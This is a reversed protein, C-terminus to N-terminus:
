ADSTVLRPMLALVTLPLPQAQEIAVRGESDIGGPMEVEVDGSFPPPPQDMAMTSRRLPVAEGAAGPMGLRFGASRLLRVGLRHIRKTRGQATGDAAGAEIRLTEIRATFGLGAHAVAAARQLTLAGDGGVAVDPHAAGDALVAVQAGALHGLGGLNATPAGAYSLGSDVSFHAALEGEWPDDLFEVFRRTQGGIQRRVCLWLQDHLSAADPIVALREVQGDTTHRHWAVVDQARQYTMGALTGDQLATWVIGDPEQQYAMDAIGPQTMHEALLTLDPAVYGDIEFSYGLERIKRQARQVFLIASGARIPQLLAAGHATERRVLVSVPTLAKGPDGAGMRFEGGPTGILLDRAPALWRITNVQDSAITYTLGSDDTVSHEFPSKDAARTPGFNGYDASQSGWLTQPQLDSGALFLRQEFFAIARPWGREAGWAGLRWAATADTSAFKGGVVAAVSSASAFGTIRAWGWSDAHKLRVMRGVDAPVFPAFGSATLTIAAGAAVDSAALTRSEDVNEQLYPGDLFEMASLSWARNGYRALRQVPHSGHALFMVDASQVFKLAALEEGAYPTPLELPAADHLRVSDLAAPEVGSTSAFDIWCNAAAPTFEVSHWGATCRRAAVLDSAGASAGLSVEVIGAAVEFLLVHLTNAQCSIQQRAIARAAGSGNLVLRSAAADHDIDAPATSEDSWGAIGSDFGGNAVSASVAAVELRGRDRYFRMYRDGLELVYAQEASFEFPLLRVPKATEKTAAVFRMGPRRSVGGHAQVIVNELRQAGNAYKALDVRGALRPSLEGATFNTQIPAARM